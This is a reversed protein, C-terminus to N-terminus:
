SPPVVLTSIATLFVAALFNVVILRFVFRGSTSELAKFWRSLRSEVSGLFLMGTPADITCEFTLSYLVVLIFWGAWNYFPVGLQYYSRGSWSWLNNSVAIPDIVADMNVALLGAVLARLAAGTGPLIVERLILYLSLAVIIWGLEVWLPVLGVWLLYGPYSPFISGAYGYYNYAGELVGVNEIISTWLVSGAFFFATKRAGQVRSAGLALITALVITGFEALLAPTPASM